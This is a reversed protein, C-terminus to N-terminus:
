PLVEVLQWRKTKSLPKSERIRVKSGVQASSNVDHVVYKKRRRLVKGYVPHQFLQTVQVVATQKMKNNMVVGVLEKRRRDAM